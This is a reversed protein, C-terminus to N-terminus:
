LTYGFCDCLCCPCTHVLAPPRHEGAMRLKMDRGRPIFHRLRGRMERSKKIYNVLLEITEELDSLDIETQDSRAVCSKTAISKVNGDVSLINGGPLM